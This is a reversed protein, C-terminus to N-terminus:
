SRTCLQINISAGSCGSGTRRLSSMLVYDVTIETTLSLTEATVVQLTFFESMGHHLTLSPGM